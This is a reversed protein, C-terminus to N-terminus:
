MPWINREKLVCCPISNEDKIFFAEKYVFFVNNKKNKRNEKKKKRDRVKM